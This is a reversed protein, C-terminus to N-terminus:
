SDEPTEDPIAQGHPDTAAISTAQHRQDRMARNTVHELREAKMHIQDPAYGAQDVLYHEWLRHSRVLDRAVAEGRDTLRNTGNFRQVLGRRQLVMIVAWLSGRRCLLREQLEDFTMAPATEHEGVRYLVGLVDEGLIRLSLRARRYAKPLLGHEPAFLLALSFLGGVAVAMMGATTTSGYGFWGPITIAGAHGLVASAAGIVA